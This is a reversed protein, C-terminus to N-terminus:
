EEKELLEKIKDYGDLTYKLADGNLIWDGDGTYNLFEYGQLVEIICETFEQYFSKDNCNFDYWHYSKEDWVKDTEDKYYKKVKELLSAYKDECIKKDDNIDKIINIMENCNGMFWERGEYLLFHQNFLKLVEDEAKKADDVELFYEIFYDDGLKGYGNLRDKIKPQDTMGLKYVNINRLKYKYTQILYIFGM